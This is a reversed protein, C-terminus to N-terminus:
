DSDAILWRAGKGVVGVGGEGGREKVSSTSERSLDLDLYICVFREFLGCVCLFRATISFFRLFLFIYVYFGDFSYSAETETEQM